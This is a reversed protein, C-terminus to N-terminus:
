ATNYVAPGRSPDKMRYYHSRIVLLFYINLLLSIIQQVIQTANANGGAINIIAYIVYLITFVVSYILYAKVHGAKDQHLGVLLVIAFALFLILFLLLLGSIATIIVGARHYKEEDESAIAIGAGLSLGTFIILIINAILNLYGIIFCGTKLDICLCCKDFILSPM